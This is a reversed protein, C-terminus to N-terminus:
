EESRARPARDSHTQRKGGHDWLRELRFASKVHNNFKMETDTRQTPYGTTTELEYLVEWPLKDFCKERDM